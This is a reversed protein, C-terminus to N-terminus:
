GTKESRCAELSLGTDLARGLYSTRQGLYEIAILAVAQKDPMDALCRAHRGAGANRAVEMARELVCEDTGIPVGVVAAGGGGVIRVDVCELPSIEATPAYGKPLLMVTKAPNAVNGINEILLERRFFAFARVTNATVGMLSLSVDDMYAFTEVGEGESEKRFRKLKPRLALCFMAPGM